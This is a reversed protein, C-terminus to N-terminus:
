QVSGSPARNTHKQLEDNKVQQALTKQYKQKQDILATILGDVLMPPVVIQLIAEVSLFGDKAAREMIEQPLPSPIKTVTLTFDYPTHSVGMYNAYYAPTDSKVDLKVQATVEQPKAAISRKPM